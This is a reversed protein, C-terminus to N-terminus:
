PSHEPTLWLWLWLWILFSSLSTANPKQKWKRDNNILITLLALGRMWPWSLCFCYMNSERLRSFLYWTTMFNFHNIVNRTSFCGWMWDQCSVERQDMNIVSAYEYKAWTNQGYTPEDSSTKLLQTDVTHLVMAISKHKPIYGNDAMWKTSISDIQIGPIYTSQQNDKM